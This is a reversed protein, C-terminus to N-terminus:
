DVIEFHPRDHFRQDKMFTDSDWDGGWRLKVGMKHAIGLIVGALLVFRDRNNWDIRRAQPDYPALDVAISPKTNHKSHPWHLQSKGDKFAKEQAKKGRHGCVITFDFVKIAENVIQRLRPDLTARRNKSATGFSPM